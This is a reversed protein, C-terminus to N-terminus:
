FAKENSGSDDLSHRGGCDWPSRGCSTTQWCGFTRARGWSRFGQLAERPMLGWRAPLEVRLGHLEGRLHRRGAHERVPPGRAGTRHACPAGAHLADSDRVHGDVTVEATGPVLALRQNALRAGRPSGRLGRRVASANTGHLPHTANFPGGGIKAADLTDDSFHAVGVPVTAGANPFRGAACVAPKVQRIGSSTAWKSTPFASEAKPTTRWPRSPCLPRVVHKTVEDM